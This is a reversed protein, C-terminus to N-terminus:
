RGPVAEYVCCPPKAPSGPRPTTWPNGPNHAAEERMGGIGFKERMQAIPVQLQEYAAFLVDVGGMRAAVNQVAWELQEVNLVDDVRWHQAVEVGALKEAPNQAIVGLRVRDLRTAATIVRMANESLIPAAFIVNM